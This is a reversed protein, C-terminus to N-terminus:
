DTESEGHVARAVQIMGDPFESLAVDVQDFDFATGGFLFQASINEENVAIAVPLLRLYGRSEPAELLVGVNEFDQTGIGM